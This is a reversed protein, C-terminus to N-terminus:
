FKIPSGGYDANLFCGLGCNEKSFDDEIGGQVDTLDEINLEESENEESIRMKKEENM